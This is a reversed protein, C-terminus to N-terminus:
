INRTVIKISIRFEPNIELLESILNQLQPSYKQLPYPDYDIGQYQKAFPRKLACLEYLICGLSWIDIGFRCNKNSLLEPAAYARSLRKTKIYEQTNELVRAIGFDCIKLKGESNLINQPKLDKHVVDKMHCEQVANCIDLMFNLIEEEDFTDGSHKKKYIM